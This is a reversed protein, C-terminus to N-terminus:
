KDKEFWYGVPIGLLVTAFNSNEPTWIIMAMAIAILIISIIFVIMRDSPMKSKISPPVPIKGFWFGAVAGILGTGFETLDKFFFILICAIAIFILTLYWRLQGFGPEEKVSSIAETIGNESIEQFDDEIDDQPHEPLEPHKLGHKIMGRRTANHDFHEYLERIMPPQQDYPLPKLRIVKHHIYLTDWLWPTQLQETQGTCLWGAPKYRMNYYRKKDYRALNGNLQIVGYLGEQHQNQKPDRVLGPM